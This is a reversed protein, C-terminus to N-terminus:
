RLGPPLPPFVAGSGATVKTKLLFLSFTTKGWVVFAYKKLKSIVTRLAWLFRLIEQGVGPLILM